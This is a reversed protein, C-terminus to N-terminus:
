MRPPAYGPPTAAKAASRRRWARRPSPRPSRARYARRTRWRSGKEYRYHCSGAAPQQQVTYKKQPGAGVAIARGSGGAAGSARAPASGGPSPSSGGLATSNCCALMWSLVAISAARCTSPMVAGASATHGSPDAFREFFTGVDEDEVFCLSEGDVDEFPDADQPVGVVVAGGDDEDARFFGAPM